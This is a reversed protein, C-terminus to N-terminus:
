KKEDKNDGKVVTHEYENEYWWVGIKIDDVGGFSFLGGEDYRIVYYGEGINNGFTYISSNSDMYFKGTEEGLKKKVEDKYMGFKISDNVVVKSKPYFNIKVVKSSSIECKKNDPCYLAALFLPVDNKYFTALSISDSLVYKDNTSYTYGKDLYTKVEDGVRLIDEGIKFSLKDDIINDLKKVKDIKKYINFGIFLIILCVSVIFFLPNIKKIKYGCKNCFLDGKNLKNGCSKCNM